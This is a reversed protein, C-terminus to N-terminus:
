FEVTAGNRECFLVVERAIKGKQRGEVERGGGGGKNEKRRRIQNM